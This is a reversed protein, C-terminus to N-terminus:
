AFRADALRPEHERQALPKLGIRLRQQTVRARGMVGIAREEGEDRLDLPRGCDCRVVGRPGAEVFKFRQKPFRCGTGVVRHREKGVQEANMDPRLLRKCRHRWQLLLGQEEACKECLEFPEGQPARHQYHELVQM